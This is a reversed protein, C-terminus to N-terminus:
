FTISGSGTFSYVTDGGVTTITPSGTTSAAAQSARIIVVGAGGAKAAGGSPATGGGGGGTGTRGATANDEGDVGSGGTGGGGSGGAGGNVAGGGGGGGAYAVSTGTIDNTAGAGGAGGSANSNAVVNGGSASAGGGGGGANDYNGGNANNGTGGANGQSATGSGGSGPTGRNRSGGGGGSGGSGGANGYFGGYGGGIATFGAFSSNSGQSGNQLNAAGSGGAGVTIAYTTGLDLSYSSQSLLGGAGGGGGVNSGGGGGGAVILYKVTVFARPTVTAASSWAGQGVGNTAAVRFTYATGNSLGTVTASTATSVSRTFTTWSSGSNSSYQVTYDTIPTQALVTPATWSVTAQANGATATVGTPAPPLFLDWRSDSASLVGSSIALGSGVRVGGLTSSSATPLTYSTGGLTITVINGSADKTFIAPSSSDWRIALEHTDLDSTLPVSSATYSRKPKIKNAM